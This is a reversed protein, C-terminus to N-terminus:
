LQKKFIQGNTLFEAEFQSGKTKVYELVDSLRKWDNNMDIEWSHGWLHWIGGHELVYDLTKKAIFDWTKFITGSTILLFSLSKSDSKLIQKGKSAFVRNVSQVTTHLEFNNRMKTHLLEGTRAGLFEAKKVANIVKKNYQGRPYAFSQVEGCIKELNEKGQTIEKEMEDESLLTLIKHNLTHGGIEFNKSLEKINESSMVENEDNSLPIYFTGPIKNSSLLKALKFDLPHGDDWSTTIIARKLEKIV